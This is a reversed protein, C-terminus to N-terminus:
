HQHASSMKATDRDLESRVTQSIRKAMERNGAQNFHCCSDVYLIRTDQDFMMTLDTYFSGRASLYKRGYPVLYEYGRAAPHSYPHDVDLAINREQPTMPKSNPVYQNPQLFHFYRYGVSEALGQMLLSSEAWFRAVDRYLADDDAYDTRPGHTSFRRDLTKKAAHPDRLNSILFHRSSQISRELRADALRWILNATISWHLPIFSFTKAMWVRFQERYAIRGAKKLMDTDTLGTGLRLSWGRPYFPHVGQLTSEDVPLVVDNFGDLNIVADPNVGLNLMFVLAMLQQPQKMGPLALSYLRVTRDSLSPAAGIGAILERGADQVMGHAVSGGFVLVTFEDKPKDDHFPPAPGVFGFENVDFREEKEPDLVFGTYPHFAERANAPVTLVHDPDLIESPASIVEARRREVQGFSFLHEYTVKYAVWSVFELAGYCLLFTILGLVLKRGKNASGADSNNLSSDGSRSKLTTLKCSPSPLLARNM